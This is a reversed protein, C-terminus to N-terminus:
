QKDALHKKEYNPVSILEKIVPYWQDKHPIFWVQHFVTTHFSNQGDHILVLIYLGTYFYSIVICLCTFINNPAKSEIVTQM